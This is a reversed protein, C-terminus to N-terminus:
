PDLTLDSRNCHTSTCSAYCVEFERYASPRSCQFPSNADKRSEMWCTILCNTVANEQARKSAQKSAQKSAPQSAQKSASCGVKAEVCWVLHERRHWQDKNNECTGALLWKHNPIHVQMCSDASARSSLKCHLLRKVTYVTQPKQPAWDHM